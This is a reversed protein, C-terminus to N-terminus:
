QIVGAAERERRDNDLYRKYSENAEHLADKPSTHGRLSKEVALTIYLYLEAISPTRPAFQINPLERAFASQVPMAKFAASERVDNRAPVQGADAWEASHDALYRILTAAAARRKPDLGSRICLVHCDAFTGPHPGAQPIPVAVYELGDLRKLDGLMYVGDMAMAVRQQRFGVWGAVGAEPPAAVKEKRLLDALYQLAAVNEPSDLTPEGADNLCHGGFQAIMSLFNFHYAGYGFGYDTDGKAAFHEQIKRGAEIWDQGTKPLKANGNADVVGAERFMRANCYIGQPHVDLPLGIIEDKGGTGFNVMDIVNPPYKEKLSASSGWLDDVRDIIRARRLRPLYSAHVVFVEPGRGDIASVIVKNYYTGWEIRQMGVNIDPHETNFERLMGIMLRGDPGTFGNWFTLELPPERGAVVTSAPSRLVAMAVCALLLLLLSFKAAM